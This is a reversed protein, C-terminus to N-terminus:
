NGIASQFSRQYKDNQEPTLSMFVYSNALTAESPFIWQNDVLSPDVTAM